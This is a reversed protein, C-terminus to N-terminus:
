QEMEYTRERNNKGWSDKTRGWGETKGWGSIKKEQESVQTASKTKELANELEKIRAIAKIHQEKIAEISKNKADLENWLKAITIENDLVQSKLQAITAERNISEIKARDISNLKTLELYSKLEEQSLPREKIEDITLGTKATFEKMVKVALNTGGTKGTYLEDAGPLNNKKAYAALDIHFHQLEAKNLVDAASIKTDYSDSQRAYNKLPIREGNDLKFRYAYEYRGSELKIAEHTKQTKYHVQNHDLNTQPVFYIHIHPQGGEDYHVRNYFVTGYRESVFSNIGKWFTEEAEPNIVKIEDKGITSYDSVTKPLTVVWSCCTVAEKERQTGRGYLYSNNLMQRYYEKASMGNRDIEVSYNLKSKAPIIEKNSDNKLKRENHKLLMEIGSNNFKELEAISDRREGYNWPNM